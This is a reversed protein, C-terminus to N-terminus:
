AQVGLVEWLSATAVRTTAGLPIVRAPFVGGKILAHAKDQGIGLARAATAVSVAPPLGLLEAMTM